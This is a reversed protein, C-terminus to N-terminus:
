DRKCPIEKLCCMQRNGVPHNRSDRQCGQRCDVTKAYACAATKLANKFVSVLEDELEQHPIVLDLLPIKGNTNM